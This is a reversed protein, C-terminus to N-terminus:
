RKMLEMKIYKQLIGRDIVSSFHGYTEKIESTEYTGYIWFESKNMSDQVLLLNLSFEKEKILINIKNKTTLSHHNGIYKLEKLNLIIKEKENINKILINNIYVKSNRNTNNLINIVRERYM